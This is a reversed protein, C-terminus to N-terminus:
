AEGHDQEIELAKTFHIVGEPLHRAVLDQDFDARPETL